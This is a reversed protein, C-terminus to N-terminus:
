KSIYKVHNKSTKIWTFKRKDYLMDNEDLIFSASISCNQKPCYEKLKLMLNTFTLYDRKKAYVNNANTINDDIVKEIGRAFYTGSPLRM